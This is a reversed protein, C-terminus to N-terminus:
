NCPTKLVVDNGLLLLEEAGNDEKMSMAIWFDVKSVREGCIDGM